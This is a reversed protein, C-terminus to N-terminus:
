IAELETGWEEGPDTGQERGHLRQGEEEQNKSPNKHKKERRTIPDPSSSPLANSCCYRLRLQLRPIQIRPVVVPTRVSAVAYSSSAATAPLLLSCILLLLLVVVVAQQLEVLFFHPPVLFRRRDGDELERVQLCRGHPLRALIGKERGHAVGAALGMMVVVTELCLKQRESSAGPVVVGV